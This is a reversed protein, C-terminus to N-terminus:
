GIGDASGGPPHLDLEVEDLGLTAIVAFLADDPYSRFAGAGARHLLSDRPDTYGMGARPPAVRVVREALVRVEAGVLTM